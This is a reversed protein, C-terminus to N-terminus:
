IEKYIYKANKASKKLHEELKTDGSRVRFDIFYSEIFNVVQGSSHSGLEAHYKTDDIHGRLSLGLHNRLKITDAIPSLKKLM